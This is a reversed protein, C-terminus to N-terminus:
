FIRYKKNEFHECDLPMAETFDFMNKKISNQPTHLCIDLKECHLVKVKRKHYGNDDFELKEIMELFDCGFCARKNAPNKNCLQEHWRMAHEVLGHKKCHQCYYVTKEKIIM